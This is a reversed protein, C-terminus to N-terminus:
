DYSTIIFEQKYSSIEETLFNLEFDGGSMKGLGEIMKGDLSEEIEGLIAFPRLNTGKIIWQTLPVFVEVSILVDKFESNDQNKKGTIVRLAIISSATEKPGIRPVIKILKEFIESEKQEETLNENSLPDKDTYYLLKVLNDNQMLRKMIRQLNVGIDKCNRIKNKM